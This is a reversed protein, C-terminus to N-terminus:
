QSRLVTRSKTYNRGSITYTAISQVKWINMAAPNTDVTGTGGNIPYNNTSAVRTRTITARIPLGGPFRGMEVTESATQPYVPWPSDNALLDDFPIREAVSREYSMYADTVTQQLAQQRPALINLSLKLLVLGIFTLLGLAVGAEVLLNGRRWSRTKGSRM